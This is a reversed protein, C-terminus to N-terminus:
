FACARTPRVRRRQTVGLALVVLAATTAEPITATQGAFNEPTAQQNVSTATFTTAPIYIMGNLSTIGNTPLVSLNM